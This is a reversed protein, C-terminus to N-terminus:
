TKRQGYVRSLLPGTNDPTPMHRAMQCVMLKPDGKPTLKQHLAVLWGVYKSDTMCMLSKTTDQVMGYM